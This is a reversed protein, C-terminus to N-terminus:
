VSKVLEKKIAEGQRISDIFMLCKNGSTALMDFLPFPDSFTFTRVYDYNRAIEYILM